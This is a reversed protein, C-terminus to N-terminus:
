VQRSFPQKKSLFRSFFRNTRNSASRMMYKAATCLQGATVRLHHFLNSPCLALWQLAKFSNIKFFCAKHLLGPRGASIWCPEGAPLTANILFSNYQDTLASLILRSFNGTLM